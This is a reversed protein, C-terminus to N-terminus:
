SQTLLWRLKKIARAKRSLLTNIPTNLRQALVKFPVGELEHAVVVQRELEGLRELAEFLRHQTEIRKLEGLPDPHLTALVDILRPGDPHLEQDLSVDRKRTRLVDILRNKLSRYIYGALQDLPPAPDAREILRLLVDQVIDEADLEATERLMSRGYAVFRARETVLYSRLTPDAM